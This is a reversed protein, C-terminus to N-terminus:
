NAFLNWRRFVEAIEAPAATCMVNATEIAWELCSAHGPMALTGLQHECSHRCWSDVGCCMWQKHGAKVGAGAAEQM